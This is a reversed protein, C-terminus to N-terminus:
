KHKASIKKKSKIREKILKNFGGTDHLSLDKSIKNKDHFIQADKVTRMKKNM